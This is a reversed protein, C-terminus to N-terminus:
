SQIFVRFFRIQIDTRIKKLKWLWALFKNFNAKSNMISTIMWENHKFIQNMMFFSDISYNVSSQVFTVDFPGEVEVKVNEYFTQAANKPCKTKSM